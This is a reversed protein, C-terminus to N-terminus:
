RGGLARYRNQAELYRQQAYPDRQPPDMPFAGIAGLYGAQQNAFDRSARYRAEDAQYMAKSEALEQRAWGLEESEQRVVPQSRGSRFPNLLDKSNGAEQAGRQTRPKPAAKATPAPSAAPNFDATLEEHSGDEGPGFSGQFSRLAALQDELEQSPEGWPASTQAVDSPTGSGRVVVRGPAICAGYWALAIAGAGCVMLLKDGNM